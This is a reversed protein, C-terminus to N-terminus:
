AEVGLILRFRGRWGQGRSRVTRVFTQTMIRIENDRLWDAFALPDQPPWPAQCGQGLVAMEIKSQSLLHLDLTQLFKEPDYSPFLGVVEGVPRLPSKVVAGPKRVSTSIM